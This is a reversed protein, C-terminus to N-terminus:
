IGWDDETRDSLWGSLRERLRREIARKPPEYSINETSSAQGRGETAGEDSKYLGDPAKIVYWQSLHKYQGGDVGLM